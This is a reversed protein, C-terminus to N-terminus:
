AQDEEVPIPILEPVLAAEAEAEAERQAQIVALGALGAAIVDYLIDM